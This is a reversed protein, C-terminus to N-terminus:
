IRDCGWRRDSYNLRANGSLAEVTTHRGLVVAEVLDAWNEAYQLLAQRIEDLAGGRSGSPDRICGKGATV